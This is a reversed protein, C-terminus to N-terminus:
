VVTFMLCTSYSCSPFVRTWKMIYYVFDRCRHVKLNMFTLSFHSYHFAIYIYFRFPPKRSILLIGHIAKTVSFKKVSWYPQFFKGVIRPSFRGFPIEILDTSCKMPYILLWNTTKHLDHNRMCWWLQFDSTCSLTQHFHGIYSKLLALSVIELIYPFFDM